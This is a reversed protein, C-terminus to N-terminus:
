FLVLLLFLKNKRDARNAKWKTIVLGNGEGYSPKRWGAAITFWLSVCVCVYLSRKSQDPPSIDRIKWVSPILCWCM